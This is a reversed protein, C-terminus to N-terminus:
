FASPPTMFISISLLLMGGHEMGVMNRKRVDLIWGFFARCAGANARPGWTDPLDGAAMTGELEPNKVENWDADRVYWHAIGAVVPTEQGPELWVAKYFRSSPNKAMGFKIDAARYEMGERSPPGFMTEIMPDGASAAAEVEAIALADDPTAELVQISSM